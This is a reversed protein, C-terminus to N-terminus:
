HTREDSIPELFNATKAINQAIVLECCISNPPCDHTVEANKKRYNVATTYIFDSFCSHRDVCMNRLFYSSPFYRTYWFYPLFPVFTPIFFYQGSLNGEFKTFSHSKHDQGCLLRFFLTDILENKRCPCLVEFVIRKKAVIEM